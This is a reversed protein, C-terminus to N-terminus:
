DREVEVTATLNQFGPKAGANQINTRLQLQDGIAVRSASERISGSVSLNDNLVTMPTTLITVATNSGAAPGDSQKYIDITSQISNSTVSQAVATVARITGAVTSVVRDWSATYPGGTNSAIATRLTLAIRDPM